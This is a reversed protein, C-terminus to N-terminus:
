ENERNKEESEKLNESEKRKKEGIEKKQESTEKKQESVRKQEKERQLKLQDAYAQQQSLPALTISRNNMEFPYKNTFGDHKVKRNFQWPRGLLMHGAHMPVVDCLVKDEYKGISFSVLVQKNVRMEGSDNVM